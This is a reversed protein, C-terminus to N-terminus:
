PQRDNLDVFYHEGQIWKPELEVILCVRQSSRGRASQQIADIEGFCIAAEREPSDNAMFPSMGTLELHTVKGVVWQCNGHKAALLARGASVSLPPHEKSVLLDERLANEIKGAPLKVRVIAADLLRGIAQGDKPRGLFNSETQFEKGVFSKALDDILLPAETELERQVNEPSVFASVTKVSTKGRRFSTSSRRRWRLYDDTAARYAVVDASLTASKEALRDISRAFEAIMEADSTKTALRSVTAIYGAHLSRCDNESVRTVDADMLKTAAAIMRKHFNAYGATAEPVRSEESNTEKLAWSLSATRITKRHMTHWADFVSSLAKPGPVLKQDWLIMGDASVVLAEVSEALQTLEPRNKEQLQKIVAEAEASNAKDLGDALKAYATDFDGMIPRRPDLYWCAMAALEAYIPLFQKEAADFKGADLLKNVQPLVKAQKGARTKLVVLGRRIPEDFVVLMRNQIVGTRRLLGRARLDLDRGAPEGWDLLRKAFEMLRGISFLTEGVPILKLSKENGGALAAEYKEVAALNTAYLSMATSYLESATEAVSADTWPALLMQPSAASPGAAVASPLMDSPLLSALIGWFLCSEFCRQRM